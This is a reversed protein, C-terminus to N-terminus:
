NTVKSLILGWIQDKLAPYEIVKSFRVIRYIHEGSLIEPKNFLIRMITSLCSENLIIMDNQLMDFLMLINRSSMDKQYKDLFSNLEVENVPHKDFIKELKNRIIKDNFKLDHQSRINRNHFQFNRHSYQILILKKYSSSYPLYAETSTFSLLFLLFIFIQFIPIIRIFISFGM